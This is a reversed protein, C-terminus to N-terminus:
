PLASNITRTLNEATVIARDCKDRTFPAEPKYDSKERWSKLAKITSEFERAEIEGKEQRIMDRVKYILYNHSNGRYRSSNNLETEQQEYDLHLNHKIKYKM